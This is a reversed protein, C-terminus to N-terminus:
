PPLGGRLFPIVAFLAAVDDDEGEDFQKQVKALPYVTLKDSVRVAATGQDFTWAGGHARVICEGLFAALAEILASSDGGRSSEIFSSLLDVGDADFPVRGGNSTPALLQAGQEALARIKSLENVQPM